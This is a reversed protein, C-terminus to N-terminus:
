PTDKHMKDNREVRVAGATLDVEVLPGYLLYDRGQRFHLRVVRHHYGFAEKVTTFVVLADVDIKAGPGYRALFRAVEPNARALKDAEALEESTLSTPLHPISEVGTVENRDMDVSVLIGLDGEYRYYTLLALHRPAKGGAERFAELRTLYIKGKFLDRTKLAQDALGRVATQEAPTLELPGSAEDGARALSAALFCLTLSISLLIARRM